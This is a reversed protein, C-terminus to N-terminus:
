TAGDKGAAFAQFSLTGGTAIHDGYARNRARKEEFAAIIAARMEDTYDAVSGSTVITVVVM